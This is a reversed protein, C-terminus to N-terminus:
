ATVYSTGSQKVLSVAESGKNALGANWEAATGTFYIKPQSGTIGSGDAGIDDPNFKNFNANDSFDPISYGAGGWDMWLFEIAGNLLNGGDGEAFVGLSALITAPDFTLSSGGWSNVTLDFAARDRYWKAGAAGTAQTLDISIVDIHSATDASNVGTLQVAGSGIIQFRPGTAVSQIKFANGAIGQGVLMRFSTVANLKSGLAVILKKQTPASAVDPTVLSWAATTSNVWGNGVRTFSGLPATTIIKSYSYGNLTLGFATSTNRTVPNLKRLDIWEGEDIAVPGSAWATANTGSIDDAKRWEVGSELTGTIGTGGGIVPMFGTTSYGTIAAGTIHQLPVFVRTATPDTLEGADYDYVGILHEMPGGVKYEFAAVVAAKAALVEAKSLFTMSPNFPGVFMAGYAVSNNALSVNGVNYSNGDVGITEGVGDCLMNPMPTLSGSEGKVNTANTGDSLPAGPNLRVVRNRAIYGASAYDMDPSHAAGGIVAMLNDRYEIRQWTGFEGQVLTQHPKGRPPNDYSGDILVNGCVVAHDLTISNNLDLQIGDSHPSTADIIKSYCVAIINNRISVTTADNSIGFHIADTYYHTVINDECVITGFAELPRIANDIDHIYNGTFTPNEFRGDVARVDNPETPLAVYDGAPDFYKGYLECEILKINIAHTAGHAAFISGSIAEADGMDLWKFTLNQAAPGLIVNGISTLAASSVGRLILEAVPKDTFTRNAAFVGDLVIEGGPGGEGGLSALAATLEADDTVITVTDAVVSISGLDLDTFTGRADTVRLVPSVTEANTLTGAIGGTDGDLTTGSPIAGSLLTVVYPALGGSISPLFALVDGVTLPSAISGTFLLPEPQSGEAITLRLTYNPM